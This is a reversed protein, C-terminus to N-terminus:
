ACTNQKNDKTHKKNAKYNHFIVLTVKRYRYTQQSRNLMNSKLTNVNYRFFTILCVFINVTKETLNDRMFRKELVPLFLKTMRQTISSERM